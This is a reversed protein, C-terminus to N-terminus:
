PKITFSFDGQTHHTDVSVAKWTVDYVGAALPAAFKVVIVKNDGGVIAPRSAAIAGGGEKALTVTTFTPEVGEDFYLTLNSASPVTSGVGPVARQLKSHAFAANAAILAALAVGCGILNKM